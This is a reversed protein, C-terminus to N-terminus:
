GGRRIISQQAYLDHKRISKFKAISPNKEIATFITETNGFIYLSVWPSLTFVVLVLNTSFLMFDFLVRTRRYELWNYMHILLPAIIIEIQLPLMNWLGGSPCMWGGPSGPLCGLSCCSCRIYRWTHPFSACAARLYTRFKATLDAVQARRHWIFSRIRTPQIFLVHSPVQFPCKYVQEYENSLTDLVISVPLYSLMSTHPPCNDLLRTYYQGM